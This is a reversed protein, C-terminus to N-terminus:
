NTECVYGPNGVTSAIELQARPYINFLYIENM